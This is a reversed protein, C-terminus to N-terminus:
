EMVRQLARTWDKSGDTHLRAHLFRVSAGEVRFSHNELRDFAASFADAHHNLDTVVAVYRAGAKAALLFLIMGYEVLKGLEFAGPGLTEPDMPLKLDTLVVDFSGSELAKIAEAYSGVVTLRHDSLEQASARHNPDDDVVLISRVEFEDATGSPSFSSVTRGTSMAGLKKGQPNNVIEIMQHFFVPPDVFHVNQPLNTPTEGKMKLIVFQRNEKFYPSLKNYSADTTVVLDAEEASEVFTMSDFISMTQEVSSKLPEDIAFLCVSIQTTSVM